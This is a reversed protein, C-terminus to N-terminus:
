ASECLSVDYTGAEEKETTIVVPADGKRSTSSMGTMELRDVSAKVGVNSSAPRHVLEAHFQHTSLQAVRCTYSLLTNYASGPIKEDDQKLAEYTGLNYHPLIYIYM